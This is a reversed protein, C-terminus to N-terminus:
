ERKPTKLIRKHKVTFFINYTAKIKNSNVEINQQTVFMGLFRRSSIESLYKTNLKMKFSEFTQFGGWIIQYARQGYTKILM